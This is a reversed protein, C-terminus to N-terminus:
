VAADRSVGWGRGECGSGARAFAMDCVVDVISAVVVEPVVVLAVTLVWVVALVGLTLLCATFSTHCHDVARFVANYPTTCVREDSRTMCEISCTQWSWSGCCLESCSDV